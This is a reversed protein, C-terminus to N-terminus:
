RCDGLRTARLAASTCRASRSRIALYTVLAAVAALPWGMAIRAVGLWGTQDPHLAPAAGCFPSAFVLVWTLTAVDFAWCRVDCRAGAATMARPGLGLRLRGVSPPDPDVGRVGGGLAAVDLHWAPFLGQLRGGSLRDARQDRRRHLGSVAPQVSERRVLRWMLVLAAVGLAACIAAALGLRARHRSSCLCGAAVFLDPRQRRGDPGAARAAAVSRTRDDVPRGTHHTPTPGRDVTPATVASDRLAPQLHGQHRKGAQRAPWAGATHAWVRNGPIRRQGLWVLTVTDTGDFFEARVGGACGKGNTEVSRLTGVMTVEQGRQCDIAASAGTNVAEDSLEEADRQEPDETLRRTLRRLYGEAAM